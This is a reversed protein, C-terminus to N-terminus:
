PHFIQGGFFIEEWGKLIVPMLLLVEEGHEYHLVFTEGGLRTLNNPCM